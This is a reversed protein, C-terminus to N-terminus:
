RPLKWDDLLDEVTCTVLQLAFRSEFIRLMADHTEDASGFVANTPVVVRLGHDIAGLVTAAVCVDTEGGTVVITDANAARLTRILQPQFWPSYVQKDIVSAPPVYRALAPVLAMLEAPMRERTMTAWKRYYSKWAGPADEESQRPIFRTFITRAPHLEVLTEVAPLVGMLWPAYWPTPEAFMRQMDVCVHVANKGALEHM